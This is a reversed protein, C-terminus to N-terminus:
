EDDNDGGAQNTREAPDPFWCEFRAGGPAPVLSLTAGFGSLLLNRCMWLGLGLGHQEKTTFGQEFIRERLAEPVGPGDDEVVFLVGGERRRTEVRIRTGEGASEMADIANRLLNTVVQDFQLPAGWLEVEGEPGEVEVRALRFRDRLLLVNAEVRASVSFATRSGPGAVRTQERMSQILRAARQTATVADRVAAIQEDAIERLDDEDVDPHGISVRMEDSLSGALNLRNLAAALPTKVEHALAGSLRGLHALRDSAVVRARSESRELEAAVRRRGQVAGAGVLALALCLLVRVELEDAPLGDLVWGVFLTVCAGILGLGLPFAPRWPLFSSFVLPIVGVYPLYPNVRDAGGTLVGTVLIEFITAVTAVAALWEAWSRGRDTRLAAILGGTLAVMTLWVLITARPPALGRAIDSAHVITGVTLAVLLATTTTAPMSAVLRPVSEPPVPRLVQLGPLWSRM